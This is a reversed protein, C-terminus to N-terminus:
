FCQLPQGFIGRVGMGFLVYGLSYWETIDYSRTCPEGEVHYTTSTVPVIFVFSLLFVISLGLATAFNPWNRTKLVLGLSFPFLFLLPLVVALYETMSGFFLFYRYGWFVIPPLIFLIFPGAASLAALLNVVVRWDGKSVRLM